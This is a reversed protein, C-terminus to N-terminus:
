HTIIHPYILVKCYLYMFSFRLVKSSPKLVVPLSRPLLQLSSLRVWGCEVVAIGCLRYFKSGDKGYVSEIGGEHLSRTCIRRKRRHASACPIWSCHASGVRPVCRCDQDTRLSRGFSDVGAVARPTHGRRCKFWLVVPCGSRLRSKRTESNNRFASGHGNCSDSDGAFSGLESWKMWIPTFCLEPLARNTMQPPIQSIFADELSSLWM